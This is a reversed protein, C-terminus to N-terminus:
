KTGITDPNLGEFVHYFPNLPSFLRQAMRARETLRSRLESLNEVGLPKLLLEAKDRQTAELLFGPCGSFIAASWPRWVNWLNVEAQTFASRLFLFLDADVFRRWPSLESLPGSEHRESLIDAHLSVCNLKKRRNRIELLKVSESAYLYTVLTEPTFRSTTNPIMVTQSCLEAVVQWRREGIIASFLTVM